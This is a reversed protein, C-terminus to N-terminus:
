KKSKKGMFSRSRATRQRSVKVTPYPLTLYPAEEGRLCIMAMRKRFYFRNIRKHQTLVWVPSNHSNPDWAQKSQKSQMPGKNRSCDWEPDKGLWHQATRKCKRLVETTTRPRIRHRSTKEKDIIHHLWLPLSGFHINLWIQSFALYVHFYNFKFMRRYKKALTGFGYISIKFKPM